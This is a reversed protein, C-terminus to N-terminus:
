KIMRVICKCNDEAEGCKKCRARLKGGYQCQQWHLPDYRDSTRGCKPCKWGDAEGGCRSCTKASIVDKINKEQYM